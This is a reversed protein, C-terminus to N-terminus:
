LILALIVVWASLAIGGVLIYSGNWGIGAQRPSVRSLAASILVSATFPSTTGSLAWGGTIATVVVAPPVGMQVPSPLLPVLLSVALIPNMGMQGTLPMIWVMAVLILLPPVSQMDLGQATVIPLLMYAGMSGIFGAMFLLIIESRYGPLERTVFQVIRSGTWGMRSMGRPRPQTAIWLVAIAPVALMVGGIISIGTALHLAAVTLMVVALLGLLPRLRTSWRETQPARPPPAKSLRPKFIADLGWGLSLLLAASVLCPLIAATWSAGPVIALTLAMSLGLPSWCLTAAFGRQIAVMMRRIRNRRLEADTEKAASEAALTGLLSISGYLLILGFLHGGMTLAIYRLGPRQRALFRGCELIDPSTTAASRIASLAVFLTIVLTGRQAAEISGQIWDSRTAAAWAILLLGILVFVQRSPAVRLAFVAMTAAAFGISLAAAVPSDTYALAVGSLMAALPLFGAPDTRTQPSSM